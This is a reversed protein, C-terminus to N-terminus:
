VGDCNGPYQGLWKNNGETDGIFYHIWIKVTVNQKLVCLDFGGQRTIRRLSEFICSLCTHKDQIKDSTSQHDATGKGYSLNPIYGIPRWFTTNNRATQNFLVLTFINPTLSSTGHLNTHSKYGFVILGIPMNPSQPNSCYRDRPPIWADGTHVEGYKDNSLNNVEVDRTLVDYGDAFNTDVMITQDTLLSTLMEKMDFVPVTVITGDHLRVNRNYPRLLRTGYSGKVSHLFSKWYQLKTNVAFGPSSTYQNVLNCIDDFMQLSAKHKIILDHLMVQFRNGANSRQPSNNCVLKEENQTHNHIPYYQDLYDDHSSIISDGDTFFDNNNDELNKLDFSHDGYLDCAYDVEPSQYDTTISLLPSSSRPREKRNFELSVGATLLDM